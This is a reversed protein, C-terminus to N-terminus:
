SQANGAQLPPCVRVCGPSVRQVPVCDRTPGASDPCLSLLLSVDNPDSM